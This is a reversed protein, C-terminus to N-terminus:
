KKPANIRDFTAGDAFHTAQAKQWGGFAEEITFM